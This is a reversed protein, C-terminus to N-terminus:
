REVAEYESYQKDRQQAQEVREIDVERLLNREDEAAVDSPMGDENGHIDSENGGENVFAELALNKRAQEMRARIEAERM